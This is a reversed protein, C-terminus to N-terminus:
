GRRNTGSDGSRGLLGRGWAAIWDAVRYRRSRQRADLAQTQEYLGALLSWLSERDESPLGELRAFQRLVRGYNASPSTTRSFGTPLHRYYFLYDPVVDIRGGAHALKLYAEWDEFSTGRDTEYGGVARFAETRVMGNADGYVNRLCGLVHPGGTPRCAYRFRGAAIDATEEFALFYCTVAAVDPRPALAAVFREIMDPRAVNDADVTLFLEGRAERLGRNRTAGIGANPQRMFRFHPHKSEESAFAEQSFADTSGDDIVIVEVNAYTQAALAALAEPLFRGHNYHAVCVTVLPNENLRSGFPLASGKPDRSFPNSSAPDPSLWADANEFAYREAYERHLDEVDALRSSERRRQVNAGDLLVTLAVDAFALGAQKAQIARFGLGGLSGFIVEDIVQTECMEVLAVRVGESAGESASELVNPIPSTPNCVLERVYHGQERLAKAHRRLAGETATM